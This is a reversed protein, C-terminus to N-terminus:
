DQAAYEAIQREYEALFREELVEFPYNGLEELKAKPVFGGAMVAHGGGNGCSSLVNHAMTGANVDDRESRLSFKVGDPRVAYVVTTEVEILSLIFDSLIAIMADPCPFDIHSFGLTDYVKISDIAAAYARLDDFEMNNTELKTLLSEDVYDYLYQYVGIDFKTVGRSFQLTDMKIGYALATAVDSPVGKGEEEYYSGIISACAGCIRLDSYKYEVEVFTPHHDICADEAGVIDTTNGSNKQADVVIILDDESMQDKISPYGHVEIGCYDLMKKSSLKDIQGEHTLTSQIGYGELLRQLGFATALADPDPFNHTQIYVARGACLQALEQVHTM